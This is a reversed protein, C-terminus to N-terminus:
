DNTDREDSEGDIQEKLENILIDKISMAYAVGKMQELKFVRKNIDDNSMVAENFLANYKERMMQEIHKYGESESLNYLQALRM